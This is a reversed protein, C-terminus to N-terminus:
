LKIIGNKISYIVLGVTNKVETKQLIKSRYNDITKSSLFLKDAIENTSYGNCILKLVELERDTLDSEKEHKTKDIEVVINRLLDSSFYYEGKSVATIGKELETKGASKSIFGKVGLSIMKSYHSYDDYMSLVMINLNKNRELAIECAKIGDMVPMDIDMLIIDPDTLPLQEIFEQGNSAEGIIQAWNEQELLSKLGNRFMQHDDVIIAKIKETVM